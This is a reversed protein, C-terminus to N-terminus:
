RPLLLVMGFDSWVILQVIVVGFILVVGASMGLGSFSRATSVMPVNANKYGRLSGIFSHQRADLFLFTSCMVFIPKAITIVELSKTYLSALEYRLTLLRLAFRTGFVIATTM